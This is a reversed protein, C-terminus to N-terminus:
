ITEREGELLTMTLGAPPPVTARRENAHRKVKIVNAPPPNGAVAPTNEDAAARAADRAVVDETDGDETDAVCLTLWCRPCMARTTGFAM